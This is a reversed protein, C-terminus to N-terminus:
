KERAIVEYSCESLSVGQTAYIEGTTLIFVAEFDDSEQWLQVASEMGMVFLATSLADATMGDRCVVTVSALGSDAPYGTKPDLIHHYRVGDREFYRQYDGSTVVSMTGSISLVGATGGARPSAIAIRWPEGDKKQGVTQVNGGLNLVACSVGANQLLADAATQGAYGKVAAGLDWQRQALAAQIETQEPVRYEGGSFGWLASLAYLQPDFEGGTRASLALAQDLVAKEADTLTVAQARNLRGLVSADDSAAYEREMEQLMRTVDLVANDADEGWIKVNMVTDMCFIDAESKKEESRTCGCLMIALVICWVACKKM